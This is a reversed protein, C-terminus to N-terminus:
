TALKGGLYDDMDDDTLPDDWGPKLQGQLNMEEAIEWASKKQTPEDLLMVLKVLPKNGKAIIVEEGRLADEVLRSLHTKAYHINVQTM